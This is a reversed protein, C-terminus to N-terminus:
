LVQSVCSSSGVLTAPSSLGGNTALLGHPEIIGLIRSGVDVVRPNSLSRCLWGCDPKELTARFRLSAATLVM